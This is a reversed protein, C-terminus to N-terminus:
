LITFINCDRVVKGLIFPHTTPLAIGFEVNGDDRCCMYFEMTGNDNHVVPAYGTIRIDSDFVALITSNETFGIFFLCVFLCFFTETLFILFLM